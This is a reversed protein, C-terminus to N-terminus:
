NTDWKNDPDEGTGLGLPGYIVNPDDLDGNIKFSSAHGDTWAIQVSGSHRSHATGAYTTNAEGPYDFVRYSGRPADEDTLSPLVVTDTFAVTQSPSFVEDARRPTQDFEAVGIRSFDSPDQPNGLSSGIWFWNYGYHVNDWREDNVTNDEATAVPGSEQALAPGGPATKDAEVLNIDLFNELAGDFNPCVFGDATTFGDDVISGPWSNIEGSRLRYPMFYDKNEAQYVATAQLMSRLNSLCQAGRAADRAASLAPLLIGILLAIISIVVLLEILTFASRYRTSQM